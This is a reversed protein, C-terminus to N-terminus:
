MEDMDAFSHYTDGLIIHDLFSIGMLKSCESIRSTVEKDECSPTCDGSPHNHLLIFSAAGCLYLRMFIERPNVLSANVLGHSVEFIGIPRCSADLALLWVHEEPLSNAYFVENMVKLIKQPCNLNNEKTYNVAKEKVLSPKREDDLLITYKTIRM